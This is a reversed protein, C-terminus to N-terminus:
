RGTPPGSFDHTATLKGVTIFMRYKVGPQLPLPRAGEVAPDMGSIREGYFFESVPDSGDTSVLHWVPLAFKNTEWAALPVIKLETLQYDRDFGFRVLGGRSVSRIEIVNPKFWNTFYFVYIGALAVAIIIFFINRKTM